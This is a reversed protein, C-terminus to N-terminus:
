PNEKAILRCFRLFEAQTLDQKMKNVIPHVWQVNGEVYGQRSDIRDLSAKISYGDPLFGLDDGSLACKGQQSKFLEDLYDLTVSVELGRSSASKELKAMYFGSVIEGGKWHPSNAQRMSRTACKHCQTIPDERTIHHKQVPKEVGCACSVLWRVVSQTAYQVRDFVGIITYSGVVRGTWDVGKHIAPALDGAM